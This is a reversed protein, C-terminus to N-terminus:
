PARGGRVGVRALVRGVSSRAEDVGFAYTAALYLTGYVALVPVGGALPGRVGAAHLALKAAWAVGAGLAAAGWVRAAFSAPFGARGVDAGLRRRLLAFEVWGALGASATLGAVGWRQPVGLARPLPFAFLWGLAITLAIRVLAFRFPTRTDKLAYFASSYLRALTSALLGIASGALVAWTYVSDEPGFKGGQLLVGALVDGLALFAVASPVVFYAIRRMDTSLRARLATRVEASAGLTGSMAPLAAASVAMGFLSVPLLYIQQAYGLATTAGTGLRSAFNLDIYGSIQVAGRALVVPGFGRLVARVATSGVDLSPRFRGLSRLASPLQVGVMLVCGAVTGWAVFTVLASDRLGRVAGWVLAGIIAVNWLVPAAYSLFFRRHSNLVGICWAGLVLLGTGPFLIRVLAVTLDRKAGTFGDAVVDVFLPTALVGAAVLVTIAAALIGFVAGAVKDAEDRKGEALLRAYVPIFSASLVGEGFLNQLINPIRTASVFVDAANSTGLYHATVKTRVLGFVRSLLIGLAVLLAAAPARRPAPPNPSPAAASPDPAMLGVAPAVSRGVVDAPDGGAGGSAAPALDTM